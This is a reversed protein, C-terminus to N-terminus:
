EKSVPDNSKHVYHGILHSVQHNDPTERADLARVAQNLQKLDTKCAIRLLSLTKRQIVPVHLDLLVDGDGIKSYLSSLISRKAFTQLFIKTLIVFESQSLLRNEIRNRLHDTDKVGLMYLIHDWTLCPLMKNKTIKSLARIQSDLFVMLMKQADERASGPQEQRKVLEFQWPLKGSLAARDSYIV